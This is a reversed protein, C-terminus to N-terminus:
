NAANISLRLCIAYVKLIGDNAVIEQGNQWYSNRLSVLGTADNVDYAGPWNYLTGPQSNSQAPPTAQGPVFGPAPARNSFVNWFFQCEERAYQYGDDPDVPTPVTNGNAYFGMFILKSRVAAFKANHSIKLLFDDTCPQGAQLCDDSLDFFGPIVGLSLERQQWGISVPPPVTQRTSGASSGGGSSGSGGGSSGGGSGGSSGPLPAPLGALLLAGAIMCSGGAPNAFDIQAAQTGASSSLKDAVYLQPVTPEQAWPGAEEASPQFYGSGEQYFGPTSSDVSISFGWSNSEMGGAIFVLENGASVSPSLKIDAGSASTGEASTDLNAFGVAYEFVCIIFAATRGDATRVTVANVPVGLCSKVYWAQLVDWMGSPSHVSASTLPLYANGVLDTLSLTPASSGPAECFVVALLGHGLTNPQAFTVM